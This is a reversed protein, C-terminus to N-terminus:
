ILEVVIDIPIKFTSITILQFEFEFEIEFINNYYKM